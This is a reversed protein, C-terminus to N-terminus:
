IIPLYLSVTLYYSSILFYWHMSFVHIYRLCISGGGEGWKFSGSRLTFEKSKLATLSCGNSVTLYYSSTLFYWHMSFVHLYRLCISGGERGGGQYEYQLLTLVNDTSLFIWLHITLCILKSSCTSTNWIYM